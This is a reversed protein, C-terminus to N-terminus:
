SETCCRYTIEEKMFQPIFDSIWKLVEVACFAHLMCIQFQCISNLYYTITNCVDENNKFLSTRIRHYQKTLLLDIRSRDWLEWTIMPIELLGMSKWHSEWFYEPHVECSKPRILTFMSKAHLPVGRSILQSGLKSSVMFQPYSTILTVWELKPRVAGYAETHANGRPSFSCRVQLLEVTSWSCNQSPWARHWTCTVWGVVSGHKPVPLYASTSCTHWTSSYMIVLLNWSIPTSSRWQTEFWWCMSSKNLSTNLNVVFSVGFGRMVLGKAFSITSEGWLNGTILFVNGNWPTMVNMLRNRILQEQPSSKRNVPISLDYYLWVSSQHLQTRRKECTKSNYSQIGPTPIGLGM